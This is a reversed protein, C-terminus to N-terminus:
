GKGGAGLASIKGLGAATGLFSGLMGYEGQKKAAKRATEFQAAEVKHGWAERAANSRVTLADLESFMRKEALVDAATGSTVDIASQAAGARAEAISRSGEMRVIGEKQAGRQYADAAQAVAVDRKQAYTAEDAAAQDSAAKADLVGKGATAVIGITLADCM